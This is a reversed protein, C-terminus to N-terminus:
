KFLEPIRVADYQPQKDREYASTGAGFPWVNTRMRVVTDSYGHTLANAILVHKWSAVWHLKWKPKHVRGVIEWTARTRSGVIATRDPQCEFRLPNAPSRECQAHVWGGAHRFWGSFHRLTEARFLVSHEKERWQWVKAIARLVPTVPDGQDEFWDALVSLEEPTSVPAFGEPISWRVIVPM